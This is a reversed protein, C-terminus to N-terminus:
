CYPSCIWTSDVPARVCTDELRLRALEREAKAQEHASTVTAFEETTVLNQDLLSQRRKLERLQDAEKLEMQTLQIRERENELEALVAGRRIWDGEEVNVRSVVGSTKAVLEVQRDAEVVSSARYYSAIARPEARALEVPVPIEEAEGKKGKKKGDTAGADDGGPIWALDVVGKRDLVVLTAASLLLAALPLLILKKPVRRAM